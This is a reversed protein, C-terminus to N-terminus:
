SRQSFIVMRQSIQSGSTHLISGDHSVAAANIGYKPPANLTTVLSRADWDEPIVGVETQTYGEPLQYNSM